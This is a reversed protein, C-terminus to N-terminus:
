MLGYNPETENVYVCLSVVGKLAALPLHERSSVATAKGKSAGDIL